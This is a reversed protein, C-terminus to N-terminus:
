IDRARIRFVKPQWPMIRRSRILSEIEDLAAPVDDAKAIPLDTFAYDWWRIKLLRAITRDSFRYRIIRGPNGAVIAYPPVDRTVVAHAGIVAGDHITVGAKIYSRYGIWVDNGITIQPMTSHSTRPLTHQKGERQAFRGWMWGKDYTLSSTTLWGTPHEAQGFGVEAAISCYRGVSRVASTLRSWSYSFGGISIGHYGTTLADALEAPTEILADGEIKAWEPLYIGQAMLDRRDDFTVPPHIITETSSSTM